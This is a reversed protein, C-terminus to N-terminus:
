DHREEHILRYKTLVRIMQNPNTLGQLVREIPDNWIEYLYASQVAGIRLSATPYMGGPDPAYLSMTVCLELLDLHFGEDEALENFEDVIQSINM